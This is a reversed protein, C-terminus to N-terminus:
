RIAMALVGDAVFQVALAALIVGLLRSVVLRGTEGLVHEIRGALLFVVLFLFAFVVVGIGGILYRDWRLADRLEDDLM